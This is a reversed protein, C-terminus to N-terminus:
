RSGCTCRLERPIKIKYKRRDIIGGKYEHKFITGHLQSKKGCHEVTCPLEYKETIHETQNLDITLINNDSNLM